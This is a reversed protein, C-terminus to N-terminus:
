SLWLDPWLVVKSQCDGQIIKCGFCCPLEEWRGRDGYQDCSWWGAITKPLEIVPLCTQKHFGMKWIHSNSPGWLAIFHANHGESSSRLWLAHAALSCGLISMYIANMPLLSRIRTVSLKSQFKIGAMYAYQCVGKCQIPAQSVEAKSVCWLSRLGCFCICKVDHRNKLFLVCFLCSMFAGRIQGLGALGPIGTPHTCSLPQVEETAGPRPLMLPETTICHPEFWQKSTGNKVDLKSIANAFQTPQKSSIAYVFQYDKYQLGHCFEYLPMVVYRVLIRIAPRHSKKSNLLHLWYVTDSAKLSLLIM